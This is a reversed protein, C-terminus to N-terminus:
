NGNSTSLELWDLILNQNFPSMKDSLLFPNFVHSNRLIYSVKRIMTKHSMKMLFSRKICKNLILRASWIPFVKSLQQPFNRDTSWSKISTFKCLDDDCTIVKILKLYLKTLLNMPLDILTHDTTYAFNKLYDFCISDCKIILLRLVNKNSNIKFPKRNLNHHCHFHYFYKCWSWM